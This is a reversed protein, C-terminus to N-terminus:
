LEGILKELKLFEFLMFLMNFSREENDYLVQGEMKHRWEM